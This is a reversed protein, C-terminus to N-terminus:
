RPTTVKQAFGRFAAQLGNGIAGYINSGWCYANGDIGVACSNRDGTSISTYTMNGGEGPPVLTPVTVSSNTGTVPGLGLQLDRNDGWCYVSGGSSLACTHGAGDKLRLGSVLDIARTGSSASIRTFTLGLGIPVPVLSPGSITGIGLQGEANDGWCYAAGSISIGCSHDGGASISSFKIGGAVATPTDSSGGGNGLQGFTNDGWCFATGDATLACTHRFGASIAVFPAPGNGGSSVPIPTTSHVIRADGLQGFSDDGWCYAGGGVAIACAHRGGASISTFTLGTTVLAPVVSNATSGNGVNGFAGSGWCYARGGIAIGCTTSDGASISQFALSDSVRLPNLACPAATPQRTRALPDPDHFCVSDATAGLQGFKNLGWCFGQGLTIIGCGFSDGVDITSATGTAALFVRPLVLLAATGTAGEGRAQVSYAGPTTSTVKATSDSTQVVNVSGSASSFTFEV